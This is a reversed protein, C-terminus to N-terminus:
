HKLMKPSCLQKSRSATNVGSEGRGLTTAMVRLAAQNQANLTKIIPEIDLTM